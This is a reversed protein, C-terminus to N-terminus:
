DCPDPPRTHDRVLVSTFGAVSTILMALIGHFTRARQGIRLALVYVIFLVVLVLLAYLWKFHERYSMGALIGVCFFLTIRVFAYPIWRFM